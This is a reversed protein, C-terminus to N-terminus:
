SIYRLNRIKYTFEKTQQDSGKTATVTVINTQFLGNGIIANEDAPIEIEVTSGPPQSTEAKIETDGSDIRYVVSTPDLPDGNRDTFSVELWITSKENITIM